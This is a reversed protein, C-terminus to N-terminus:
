QQGNRRALLAATAIVVVIAVGGVTWLAAKVIPQHTTPAEADALITTATDLENAAVVATDSTSTPAGQPVVADTMAKTWVLPLNVGIRAATQLCSCEGVLIALEEEIRQATVDKGQLSPMVTGAGAIVAVVDPGSPAVGLFSLLLRENEDRRDVRVIQTALADGQPRDKVVSEVTRSAQGAGDGPIYVLVALSKPLVAAIKDRAPSSVIAALQKQSPRPEWHDIYFGKRRASQWGSLVTVPTSPPASPIGLAHWDVSKDDAAVYQLEVNLDQANAKWWADIEDYIARAAPDDSSQGIVSLRHVDRPQMFINDRVYEGECACLPAPSLAAVVVLSAVIRGLRSM